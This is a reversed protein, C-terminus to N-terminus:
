WEVLQRAIPYEGLRKWQTSGYKAFVEVKADIFHSNKLIDLRPETGTYGHNSVLILRKTTAGPALGESGAIPLFRSGWEDAETIRRFLSNLQVVTLTQNSVNKLQFSIAPLLKNQGNVVGADSWGSSVDVVQLAKTVDVSPGACGGSM